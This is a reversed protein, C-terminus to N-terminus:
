YEGRIPVAPKPLEIHRLAQRAKEVETRAVVGPTLSSSSSGKACRGLTPSNRRKIKGTNDTTTDGTRPSKLSNLLMTMPRAAATNAKARQASSLYIHLPDVSQEENGKKGSGKNRQVQLCDVKKANV